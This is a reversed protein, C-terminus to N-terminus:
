QAATGYLKQALENREGDLKQATDRDGKALADHIKKTLDDMTAEADKAAKGDLGIVMGHEDMKRGIAAFARVYEPHASAKIGDIRTREMIEVLRDGGFARVARNAHQENVAYEAPGGYEATLDTKTKEVAATDRAAQAKEGDALAQYYLDAVAQVTEPPAHREHLARAIMGEVAAAGTEDIAEPLQEPRTIKYEEFKEPVNFRKRFEAVEEPKADKGPAAIPARAKQFFTYGAKVAEAASTFREAFKKHEPDTIGARWDTPEPAPTPSPAPEPSPAPAPAPAPSPAPSPTPEPAPSPAPTPSPAPSPTPTPDPM